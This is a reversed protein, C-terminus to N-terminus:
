PRIGVLWAGRQPEFPGNIGMFRFPVSVLRMDQNVQVAFHLHPGTTFGTNGSYAILEGAKVRLGQHVQAKELQLHAYVAMSGDDHLIRISNAMKAYAQLTGSKYFDDQVEMIVGERAAYIPTDIPMMIDVAYHNQADQHSFEGGFGQSIPFREGPAIPPLYSDSAFYDTLPPGIMYRYQLTFRWPRTQEEGRVDFLDGSQGPGVVFRQPLPPTAIANEHNEWDVELEVPGPYLNIAYYAPHYKDSSSELRVLQKTAPKLQRVEVDKETVPPKDTYHWVGKEDQFKYLKKATGNASLLLLLM